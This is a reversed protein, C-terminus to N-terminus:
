HLLPRINVIRADGLNKGANVISGWLRFTLLFHSLRNTQMQIDYGDTTAINDFAMVGANACLCNLNGEYEDDIINKAVVAAKKVADFSALDCPVDHVKVEGKSLEM